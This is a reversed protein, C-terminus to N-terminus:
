IDTEMRGEVEPKETSEVDDEEDDMRTRALLARAEKVKHFEDYHKKRWERFAKKREALSLLFCACTRLHVLLRIGDLFSVIQVLPLPM